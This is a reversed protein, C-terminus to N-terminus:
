SKAKLASTGGAAERQKRVKLLLAQQVMTLLNNTIWYLVLGSPFAFAFVTFMIPMMQMIRRQMPDGTAPMMKQMGLSTAGMLIPLIWIPDPASLDQIWGIWPANRLEVATALLRYLAFFVPIQLLMPFCGSVPNVGATRYLTMVEENMQRQAELNPRGQKDKLKSKFRARIAQVKPNLEQMKTMSEQSKWTLPFFVLKIGFTLLVIAWGYNAVV